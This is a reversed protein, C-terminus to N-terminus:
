KNNKIALIREKAESYLSEPHVDQEDWFILQTDPNEKLALVVKRLGKLTDLVSENVNEQAIEIFSARHIAEDVKSEELLNLLDHIQQKSVKTYVTFGHTNFLPVAYRQVSEISVLTEIPDENESIEKLATIISEIEMRSHNVRGETNVITNIMDRIKKSDLREFLTFLEAPKLYLDFPLSHVEALQEVVYPDEVRFDVVTGLELYSIVSQEEEFTGGVNGMVEDKMEQLKQEALNKDFVGYASYYSM